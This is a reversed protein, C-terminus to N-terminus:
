AYIGLDSPVGLVRRVDKERFLHWVTVNAGLGHARAALLLNQVALALKVNAHYAGKGM